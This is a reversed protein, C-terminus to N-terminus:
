KLLENYKQVLLSCNDDNLQFFESYGGFSKEFSYKHQTFEAHLTKEMSIYNPSKTFRVLSTEPIYRYQNFFAMVVESLRENINRHTIGIKYVVIPEADSETPRLKMKIIYCIGVENSPFFSM